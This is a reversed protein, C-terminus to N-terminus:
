ENSPLTAATAACLIRTSTCCGSLSNRALFESLFALLNPFSHKTRAQFSKLVCTPVWCGSQGRATGGGGDAVRGERQNAYFKSHPSHYQWRERARYRTSCCPPHHQQATRTSLDSCTASAVLSKLITNCVGIDIRWLV